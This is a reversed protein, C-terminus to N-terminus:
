DYESEMSHRPKMRGDQECWWMWQTIRRDSKEKRKEEKQEITKIHRSIKRIKYYDVAFLLYLFPDGLWILDHWSDVLWGVM